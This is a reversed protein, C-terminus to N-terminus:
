AYMDVIFRWVLWCAGEWGERYAEEAERSIPITSAPAGNRAMELVRDMIQQKQTPIPGTM